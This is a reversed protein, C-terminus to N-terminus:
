RVLGPLRRGLPGSALLYALVILACPAVLSVYRYSSAMAVVALLAINALVAVAMPNALGWGSARRRWLAVAAALLAVLYIWSLDLAVWSRPGVFRLLVAQADDYRAPYTLPYGINDPTTLPIFAETPPRLFGAVGLGMRVRGRLWVLPHGRVADLWAHRLLAAERAAIREDDFAITGAVNDPYLSIVNEWRFRARVNRMNVPWSVWGMERERLLRASFLDRNEHNSIQALDYVYLFREAHVSRVDLAQYAVKTLGLLAVCSAGAVAAAVLVRRRTAVRGSTMAFAVVAFVVTLGNQRCWFALVAAAVAAALLMTRRGPHRYATALLGFALLSAGLYFTDRSVASIVAYTPPFLALLVAAVAAPVRRLVLRLCLYAGALVIALGVAYALGLGLQWEMWRRLALAGFATWWDTAFKAWAELLTQRADLTVIGPWFPLGVLGVGLALIASALLRRDATGPM